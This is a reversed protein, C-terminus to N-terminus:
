VGLSHRLIYLLQQVAPPVSVLCKSVLAFGAPGPFTHKIKTTCSAWPHELQALNQLSAASAVVVGNASVQGLGQAALGELQAEVAMLAAPYLAQIHTGGLIM